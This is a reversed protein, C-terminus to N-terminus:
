LLDQGWGGLEEEIFEKLAVVAAHSPRGMTWAEVVKAAFSIPADTAWSKFESASEHEFRYLGMLLGICLQISEDSMGLKQYKRLEDLFPELVREVMQYAAETPEVYGHRKPGAQEWVEEVELADLDAYLADAIEERDVDSLRDRAIKAIRRAIREDGDALTRLVSLADAHSLQDIIKHPDKM